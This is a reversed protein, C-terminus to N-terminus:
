LNRGRIQQQNLSFTLRLWFYFTEFWAKEMKILIQRNEESNLLFIGDYEETYIKAHAVAM